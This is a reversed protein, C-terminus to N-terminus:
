PLVTQLLKSISTGRKDLDTFLLLVRAQGFTSALPGSLPIAKVVIPRGKQREIAINQPLNFDTRDALAAAVLKQLAANSQRHRAVLSGAHLHFDEGLLGEAAPTLGSVTGRRDILAAAAGGLHLMALHETARRADLLAALEIIQSLQPSVAALARAHERSVRGQGESRLLPMVWSSGNAEFGIAAWNPLEFGRCLEQFYPSTRREETSTFDDDTFRTKRTRAMLPWGRLSRPDQLYWGETVYAHIFEQIDPSVPLQVLAKAEDKPYFLCGVSNTARAFDHLATAWEEPAVVAKYLARVAKQLGDAM